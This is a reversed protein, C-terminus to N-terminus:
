RGKYIVCNKPIILNNADFGLVQAQGREGGGWRGETMNKVVIEFM